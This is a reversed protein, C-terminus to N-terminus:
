HFALVAAILVLLITIMALPQIKANKAIYKMDGSRFFRGQNFHLTGSFLLLLGVLGLKVKFATTELDACGLWAMLFGSTILLLLGIANMISLKKLLPMMTGQPQSKGFEATLRASLAGGMGFVLGLFHIVLLATYM